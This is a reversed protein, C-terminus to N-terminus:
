PHRIGQLIETLILDTIAIRVRNTILEKLLNTQNLPTGNFFPIWVSTDVIIM